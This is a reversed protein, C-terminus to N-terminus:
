EEFDTDWMLHAVKWEGDEKIMHYANIGEDLTEGELDYIRFHQWVTAIRGTTLVETDVAEEFFVHTEYYPSAREIWTDIDGQHISYGNATDPFVASLSGNQMFHNRFAEWDYTEGPEGSIIDLLDTTVEKIAEIDKDWTTPQAISFIPLLFLLISLRNM